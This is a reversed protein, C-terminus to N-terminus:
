QRIGEKQGDTLAEWYAQNAYTSRIVSSELDSVTKERKRVSRASILVFVAAALNLISAILNVYIM